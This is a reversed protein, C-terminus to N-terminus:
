DLVTRLNAYREQFGIVAAIGPRGSNGRRIQAVKQDLRSRISPLDGQDTGSVELRLAQELDSSDPSGIYYDAGTRTEARALAVFGFEAEIVALTM